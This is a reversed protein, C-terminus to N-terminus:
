AASSGAGGCVEGGGLAPLLERTERMPETPLFHPARRFRALVPGVSTMMDEDGEWGPREEYDADHEGYSMIVKQGEGEEVVEPDPNYVSSKVLGIIEEM